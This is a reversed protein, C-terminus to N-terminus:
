PRPSPPAPRSGSTTAGSSPSPSAVPSSPASIPASGQPRPIGRQDTTIGTVAAGADIAPSGPLLAQTFTPGGNDALPGLLPDNNTLDTPDLAVGPTDSFLNHGLSIFATGAESVLNGGVPNAFLSTTVAVRGQTRLFFGGGSSSASNDSLTCYTLTLAGSYDYIGGGSSSASNGSLTSDTLTLTGENLVGGGNVATNATLLSNTVTVRFPQAGISSSIGGGDNSASNGNLTSGTVALNGLNDIGGGNSASNGSLTSNTVTVTGLVINDIAGGRDASNGSLTSNTVTLTGSNEIGGGVGGVSNASLTSNTVTVTGDNDIGGGYNSATNVSLTSSTITVNGRNYIGGGGSRASNASLTSNTVTLTGFNGIGGGDIASNANLISNTVTLTGSYNFIGGGGDIASNASLTSNTVTLTGSNLIGGGRDAQGGTITLGSIMVEAGLTVNFIGFEPTGPAASRAVTLLSPGPGAVVINAALDPLATSLTIMGTVSPAFTITDPTANAQEIAARLSGPGSDGANSVLISLLTRGEM